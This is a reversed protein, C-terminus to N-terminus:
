IIKQWSLNDENWKYQSSDNPYPIPSEWSCTTENLIWSPFPQPSIFADRQSDYIHGRAAYNKRFKNNYSTQIWNGGFLKRCFDIGIQEQEQGSQDLLESNNIVIVRLVENNSNIEAFHAM